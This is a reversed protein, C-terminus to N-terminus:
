YENPNAIIHAAKEKIKFLNEPTIKRLLSYMMGMRFNGSLEKKKTM